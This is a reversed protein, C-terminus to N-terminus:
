GCSDRKHEDLVRKIADIQRRVVDSEVYDRLVIDRARKGFSASLQIDALLRELATALTEADRPPVLFGTEDPIVEERCGRIDTAVVPLKMAMAEIISRPLGERYSPLCFVDMAAMMAAADKCFGPLVLRDSVGHEEAYARLIEDTPRNRNGWIAGGVIMFWADRMRQSIASAARIFEFMGKEYSYRTLMGAVRVSEPIGLKERILRREEPPFRDPNFVAPDIGNGIWLARGPEVIRERVILEYDEKSQSFVLHTWRGVVREALMSMFRRLPPTYEHFNFGHVTYVVVPVRSIRAAIRGVFAALPNHTHVVHYRERRMLRVLMWLRRWLPIVERMRGYPVPFVRFGRKRLEDEGGSLTAAIDVQWGEAQMADILARLYLNFSHDVGAVQLVKIPGSGM